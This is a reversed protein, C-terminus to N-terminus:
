FDSPLGPAMSLLVNEGEPSTLTVASGVMEVSWCTAEPEEYQFCIKEDVLGWRGTQVADGLKSKVTGDPLYGDVLVKGDYMGSVSNGVLKAWAASGTLKTRQPQDVFAPLPESKANKTKSKKAPKLPAATISPKKPAKRSKAGGAATPKAAVPKAVAEPATAPQVAATPKGAKTKKAQPAPVAPTPAPAVTLADATPVAAYQVDPLAPLANQASVSGVSFPLFLAGSLAAILIRSKM